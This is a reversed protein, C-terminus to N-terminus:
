QEGHEARGSQEESRELYETPGCRSQASDQSRLRQAESDIPSLLFQILSSKGSSNTGFLGTIRGFDSEAKQWIKFNKLELRKLM